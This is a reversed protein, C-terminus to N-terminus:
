RWILKAAGFRQRLMIVSSSSPPRTRTYIPLGYSESRHCVPNASNPRSSELCNGTLPLFPTSQVARFGAQAAIHRHPEFAADTEVEAILIREGRQLARGCASGDDKANVARFYDLFDHQFGHQAAIELTRTVPDYIQVLGFGARHLDIAAYLVEKLLTDIGDAALLKKNLEHLRKMAELEAAMENKLVVLEM